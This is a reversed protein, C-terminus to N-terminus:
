PCSETTVTAQFGTPTDSACNRCQYGTPGDTKCQKAPPADPCNANDIVATSKCNKEIWCTMDGAHHNCVHTNEEEKEAMLCRPNERNAWTLGVGPCAPAPPNQYTGETCTDCEVAGYCDHRQEVSYCNNCQESGVLARMAGASLVSSSPAASAVCWCAAIGGALTVLVLCARKSYM